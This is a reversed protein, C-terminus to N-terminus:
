VLREEYYSEYLRAIGALEPHEHIWAGTHPEFETLFFLDLIPKGTLVRPEIKLALQDFAADSMVPDSRCEYAYAAVALRIRNRIEPDFLITTTSETTKRPM